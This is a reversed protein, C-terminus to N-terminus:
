SNKDCKIGHGNEDLIQVRHTGRTFKYGDICSVTGYNFALSGLIFVIAVVIMLEILTFGKNKHSM